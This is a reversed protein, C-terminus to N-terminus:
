TVGLILAEIFVDDDNDQNWVAVSDQKISYIETVEHETDMYILMDDPLDKIAKRIDGVTMQKDTM